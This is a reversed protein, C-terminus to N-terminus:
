VFKLARVRSHTHFFTKLDRSRFMHLSITSHEYIRPCIEGLIFINRVYYARSSRRRRRACEFLVCTLAHQAQSGRMRVAAEFVCVSM